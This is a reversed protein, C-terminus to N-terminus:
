KLCRPAYSNGGRPGLHSEVARVKTHIIIMNADLSGGMNTRSSKNPSFIKLRLHTIDLHKLGNMSCTARTQPDHRLISVCSVISADFIAQSVIDLICSGKVSSPFISHLLPSFECVQHGTQLHLDINTSNMMRMPVFRKRAYHM